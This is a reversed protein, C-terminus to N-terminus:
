KQQCRLTVTYFSREERLGPAFLGLGRRFPKTQLRLPVFSFLYRPLEEADFQGLPHKLTFASNWWLVFRDSLPNWRSFM